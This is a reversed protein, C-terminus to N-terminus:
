KWEDNKHNSMPGSTSRASGHHDELTEATLRERRKPAHIVRKHFATRAGYQYTLMM